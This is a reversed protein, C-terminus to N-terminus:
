LGFVLIFNSDTELSLSCDEWQESEVASLLILLHSIYILDFYLICFYIRSLFVHFFVSNLLYKNKHIHAQAWTRKKIQSLGLHTKKWNKECFLPNM